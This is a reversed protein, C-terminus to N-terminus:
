PSVRYFELEEKIAASSSRGTEASIRNARVNCMSFFEEMIGSQLVNKLSIEKTEAPKDTVWHSRPNTGLTMWLNSEVADQLDMLAVYKSQDVAKHSYIYGHKTYLVTRAVGSVEMRFLGAISDPLKCEGRSVLRTGSHSLIHQPSYSYISVTNSSDYSLLSLSTGYLSMGVGKLLNVGGSSQALIHLSPPESQYFLLFLGKYADGCVIINRMVMCSTLFVHIDQFSVARLGENRDFSYVMLKTGICVVINGKVIDCATPAGKTKEAALAKLKHRTEIRDRKPVVSAIELVILRGRAMLDEDTIYTTCVIVFESFGETNQKDPLTVIRHFSIYENDELSYEDVGTLVASGKSYQRIEDHSYIKLSYARTLPNVSIDPIEPPPTPEADLETTALVTFPIMDKTYPKEKYVSAVLVKKISSYAIQQCISDIKTRRYLVARDYAYYAPMTAYAINGKAMVVFSRGGQADEKGHMEDISDIPMSHKHMIIAYQTFCLVRAMHAGPIFVLDGCVRMRGLINQARETNEYYFANNGVTEKYFRGNDRQAYVFIENNQTRVILYLSVGYELVAIEEVPLRHKRESINESVELVSPFVTLMPSRLVVKKGALSYMILAGETDVAYLVGRSIAIASCAELPIKAKRKGTYQYIKGTETLVIAKGEETYAACVAQEAHKVTADVKLSKNLYCIDDVTIQIYGKETEKFLITKSNSVESEVLDVDENWEVVASEEDKTVLYRRNKQDVVFIDSYGQIKASQTYLFDMTEKSELLIPQGPSGASAMFIRKKDTLPLPEICSVEGLSDKRQTIVIRRTVTEKQETEVKKETDGGLQFMKEYEKELSRESPTKRKKEKDEQAHIDEAPIEAELPDNLFLREYEETVVSTPKQEREETITEPEFTVLFLGEATTFCGYNMYVATSYPKNYSIDLDIKRGIVSSVRSNGGLVTFRLFISESVLFIDREKVFCKGDEVMFNKEKIFREEIGLRDFSWFENFRVGLMEWQSYFLAGCAGLVMFAKDCTPVLLYCGHPVSDIEFFFSLEYEENIIYVLVRSREAVTDEFLFCLSASSYGKLFVVDKIACHRPRVKQMEFVKSRGVGSSSFISFHTNSILLFSMGHEEDVRVFSTHAESGSIFGYQQKEYFRLASCVFENQDERFFVSSVRAHEFHVLLSDAGGELSPVTVLGLICGFVRKEKIKVLEGREIQYLVIRDCGATIICKKGGIFQGMALHQDASGLYREHLLHNM